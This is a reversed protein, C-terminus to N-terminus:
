TTRTYCLECCTEFHLAQIQHWLALSGALMPWPLATYLEVTVTSRTLFTKLANFDTWYDLGTIVSVRDEAVWLWAHTVPDQKTMM